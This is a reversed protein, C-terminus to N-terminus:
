WRPLLCRPSTRKIADAFAPMPACPKAGTCVKMGMGDDTADHCTLCAGVTLIRKQEEVSFPRVDARTSVGATRAQLFGTWADAPLGDPGPTQKPTFRWRGAQGDREYRLTGEGYGLAVPDAHCSRCSRSKGVTHSFSRAYLRRFTTGSPGGPAESRDLTMVMGPIFTDVVDRSRVGSGSTRMGLTPPVAQFEGATERWAGATERGDLLDVAVGKADYSTHCQPCRPAWQAHCSICSLREHGDSRLCVASPPKMPLRKSTRKAVLTAIGTADVDTNVLAQAGDSTALFREGPRDRGRLVALKRAETDLGEVTVVSPRLLGSDPPPIHCDTCAVRVAEHARGHATGDGMVERSTHCDVCGMNLAHVDPSVFTFVRGDALSRTSRGEAKPRRSDAESQEMWGEYNTSIRGSRSHCGFCSVPDIAISVNPHVTTLPDNTARATALKYRELAVRAEPDYQLHCANCGGGRSDEGLPGLSRKEAGLHCSACLQRLHGDAGTRALADVRHVTASGSRDGFVARDVAVIGAMTTMLSGSVREVQSPHCAPTGCSRSADALNGPVLVLGAHATARDLSFPNGGHCSACGVAEVSHARSLGTMAAHCWACGEPRGLVAPVPRQALREVAPTRWGGIGHFVLGSTPSTLGWNWNAGRFQLGVGTLVLYVVLACALLWKSARAARESLRPLLGLLVLACVGAGAVILPRSSWHLAEQLGVFYWPGKVIPDLGDHLAPSVFLSVIGVPVLVEVLTALRPWIARAHEAVFLWVLLTATAVHHVYLVQRNAETGFIAASIIRGVGPIGDVLATVIRLAQQAEADGKLMFGSLMVFAALPVSATVRWWMARPVNLETWRSLHEWAHVLTLVLFVQGSWYHVNRFFAAAPNTLLILAVSDYPHSGDYPVALALGSAVALWLGAFGLEGWSSRVSWRGGRVSHHVSRSPPRDSSM